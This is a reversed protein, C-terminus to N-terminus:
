SAQAAHDAALVVVDARLVEILVGVVGRPQLVMAPKVVARERMSREPKSQPM